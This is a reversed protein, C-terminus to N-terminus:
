IREEIEMDIGIDKLQEIMRNRIYEQCLMVYDSIRFPKIDQDLWEFNDDPDTPYTITIM